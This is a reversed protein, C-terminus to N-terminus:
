APRSSDDIPIPFIEVFRELLEAEGTIKVLGSALADDPSVDGAMLPTLAGMAEIVLDPNEISGHGVDLEGNEICVHVVFDGFRIEYNVSMEGAVEPRFTARFARISPDVYVEGNPGPQDLSRAGWRGLRLLVDELERGYPTLEYVVSSEPRPLLRRRIVGAAELEKLRSSLVNTPIRPLGERLDTFRRPRLLLERIILLAWREGVLELGRAIGCFQGYSRRSM